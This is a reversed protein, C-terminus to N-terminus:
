PEMLERLKKLGRHVKALITGIPESRMRAIERFTLNSYYRLMVLERIQPDLKGLEGQLRDIRDDQTAALEVVPEKSRGKRVDMVKRIRQKERLHDHFLNSATRFLWAEFSRGRYSGIGSVLKVFLESLLEDSLDRNGTLRYFYGYCRGAYLDILRRFSEADGAKCGAIIATLNNDEEM